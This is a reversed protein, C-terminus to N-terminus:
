DEIALWSQGLLLGAEGYPSSTEAEGGRGALGTARRRMM